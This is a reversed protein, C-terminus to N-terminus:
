LRIKVGREAAKRFTTDGRPIEGARRLLLDMHRSDEQKAEQSYGDKFARLEEWFGSRRAYTWFVEEYPVGDYCWPKSFLNYHIISPHEMPAKGETPMADWSSELYRIKGSCMANLYDQDPAICDFHYTNLLSLFHEEMGAQRMKKLNMLLIGSNIYEERPVGVAEEMYDGLIKVDVVSMDRAAAIFHDGLDLDYLKALDDEVVIDSDLYIAKERDPFMVPIFLRFYITLTFYDARIRNGIRDTICDLSREMPVFEVSFYETALTTVRRINEEKVGQHLVIAQYRRERSANQIASTLAVALFPIYNDDVSFFIPIPEQKRM